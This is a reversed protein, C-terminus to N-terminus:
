TSGEAFRYKQSLKRGIIHDVAPNNTWFKLGAARASQEAGEDNRLHAMVARYAWMEPYHPNIAEIKKLEKEADDYEEADVLHEVLLIRAPLHSENAEFVKELARLMEKRDSPALAEAM